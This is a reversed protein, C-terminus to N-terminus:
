RCSSPTAVLCHTWHNGQHFGLTTSMAGIAFLTLMTSPRLYKMLYASAAARYSCCWAIINWSVVAKSHWHEEYQIIFTWCSKHAVYFFGAIVGRLQLEQDATQRIAPGINARDVTDQADKTVCCVSGASWEGSILNPYPNPAHVVAKRM